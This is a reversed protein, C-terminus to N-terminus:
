GVHALRGLGQGFGQAAGEGLGLAELSLAVAQEHKEGEQVTPV